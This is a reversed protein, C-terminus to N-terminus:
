DAPAYGQETLAARLQGVDIQSDIQVTRTVLDVTVVAQADLSQVTRKVTAACHGCNMDPLKLELM